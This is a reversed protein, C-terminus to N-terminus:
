QSGDPQSEFGDAFSQAGRTVSSEDPEDTTACKQVTGPKELMEPREEIM